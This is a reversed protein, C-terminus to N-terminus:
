PQYWARSRAAESRPVEYDRPRGGDVTPGLDNDGYPDHMVARLQQIETPGPRLWDGRYSQCGAFMSLCLMAAILALLRAPM